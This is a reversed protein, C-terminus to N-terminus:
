VQIIISVVCTDIQHEYSQVIYCHWVHLETCDLHVMYEGYNGVIIPTLLGYLECSERARTTAGLYWTTLLGGTSAM